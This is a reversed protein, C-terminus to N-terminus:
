TSSRSSCSVTVTRRVCMTTAPSCARGARHGVNSYATEHFCTAFELPGTAVAHGGNISLQCLTPASGSMATAAGPASTGPRTRDRRRSGRRGVSAPHDSGPRHEAPCRRRGAVCSPEGRRERDAVREADTCCRRRLVDGPREAGTRDRLRAIGRSGARRRRRRDRPEVAHTRSAVRAAEPAAAAPGRVPRRDGGCDHRRRRRRIAGRVRRGAPTRRRPPGALRTPGRGARAEGIRMSSTSRVM